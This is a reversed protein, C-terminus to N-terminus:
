CLFAIFVECRRSRWDVISTDNRHQCREFKLGVVKVDGGEFYCM